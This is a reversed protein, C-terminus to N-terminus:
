ISKRGGMPLMVDYSDNQSQGVSNCLLTVPLGLLDRYFM